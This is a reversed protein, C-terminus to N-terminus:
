GVYNGGGKLMKVADAQSIDRVEYGSKRTAEKQRQRLMQKLNAIDITLLLFYLDNFHLRQILCDQVKHEVCKKFITIVRPVSSSNNTKGPYLKEYM